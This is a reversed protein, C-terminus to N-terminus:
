SQEDPLVHVRQADTHASTLTTISIIIIAYTLYRKYLHHTLRTRFRLGLEKLGYKLLTNVSALQTPLLTANGHKSYVTGIYARVPLM